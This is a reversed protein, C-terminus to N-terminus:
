ILNNKLALDYIISAKFNNSSYLSRLKQNLKDKSYDEFKNLYNNLEKSWYGFEKCIEMGKLLRKQTINKYM